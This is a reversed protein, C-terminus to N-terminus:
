LFWVVHSCPAMCEVCENCRLGTGNILENWAVIRRDQWSRWKNRLCKHSECAPLSTVILLNFANLRFRHFSSISFNTFRPLLWCHFLLLLAVTVAMFYETQHQNVDRRHTRIESKIQENEMIQKQFSLFTLFKFSSFDCYDIIETPAQTVAKGNTLCMKSLSCLKAGLLFRFSKLKLVKTLWKRM